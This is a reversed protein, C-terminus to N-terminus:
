HDPYLLLVPPSCPRKFLGFLSLTRQILRTVRNRNGAQLMILDVDGNAAYDEIVRRLSGTYVDVAVQVGQRHLADCALSVEQEALGKQMEWSYRNMIKRGASAAKRTSETTVWHDQLWLWAEIPYPILFAVRMGPQAVKELYPIMEEIRDHRKLPVLIQGSM